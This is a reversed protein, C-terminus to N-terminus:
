RRRVRKRRVSVNSRSLNGTIVIAGQTTLQSRGARFVSMKNSDLQEIIDVDRPVVLRINSADSDIILHVRWETGQGYGRFDLRVNSKSARVLVRPSLIWRGQKRVSARDAEIVQAEPDTEVAPAPLAQEIRQLSTADTASAIQGALEDYMDLDLMNQAFSNAARDFCRTRITELNENGRQMEM